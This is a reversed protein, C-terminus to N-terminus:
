LLDQYPLLLVIIFIILSGYAGGDFKGMRDEMLSRVFFTSFDFTIKYSDDIQSRNTFTRVTFTNCQSYTSSRSQCFCSTDPRWEIDDAIVPSALFVCLVLHDLFSLSGM